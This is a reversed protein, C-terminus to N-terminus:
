VARIRQPDFPGIKYLHETEHFNNDREDKFEDSHIFETKNVPCNLSEALRLFLKQSVGNGSTITTEIYRVNELAPRKLIEFLMRSALKMGRYKSIVAAQWIFLTSSEDPKLYATIMGAAKGEDLAIVSTESFHEGILFYVYKSNLDLPPCESVLKYLARGDKIDPKKLVIFRDKINKNVPLM